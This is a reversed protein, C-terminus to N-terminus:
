ELVAKKAAKVVRKCLEELKFPKSVFDYAGLAEAERAQEFSGYGTIMIVQSGPSRRKVLGLVELGDPGEMKLDTVVVHFDREDLRKLAERSKTFVEVVFGLKELAPKLREGVTPEDDLILVRQENM